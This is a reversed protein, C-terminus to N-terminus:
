HPRRSTPDLTARTGTLAQGTQSSFTDPANALSVHGHDRLRRLNRFGVRGQDNGMRSEVDQALHRAAPQRPQDDPEPDAAEAAPQQHPDRREELGLRCAQARLVAVDDARDGGIAREGQEQETAEEGAGDDSGQPTTIRGHSGRRGTMRASMAMGIATAM